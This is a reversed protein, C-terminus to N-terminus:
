ACTSLGARPETEWIKNGEGDYGYCTRLTQGDATVAKGKLLLNSPNSANGAEYQYSVVVEDAGGAACAAGVTASTRCTREESVLWVPSAAQVYGGGSAALWAYHQAYAYRKVPQVGGVAAGTETLVGGHASAYTYSTTNLNPDTVSSPKNCTKPDSCTSTYAATSTIDAIGSGPKARRITQYINGRSDRLYDTRGGEPETVAAVDVTENELRDAAEYVITTTRGLPDVISQPMGGTGVEVTTTQTGNATMTVTNWLWPFYYPENPARCQATTPSYTYTEGTATQQSVIPDQLFRIPDTYGPDWPIPPCEGYTNSIKCQSAGPDRVCSLHDHPSYGYTATAGGKTVSTLNQAYTYYAGDTYGYTASRAGAPCTSTALVYTRSLNVVCATTPRDFLIAWGRNSFISKLMASYNFDLRTGDPYTIDSVKANSVGPTFNTVTGDSETLTYYGSMTTGNFVLTVGNKSVSEYNGWPVHTPNQATGGSTGGIFAYSKMGISIHYLWPWRHAVPSVMVDPHQPLRENSVYTAFNDTWGMANFMGSRPPRTSSYSRRFTIGEHGEGGISLDEEDYTFTLTRYSVGTPSKSDHRPPPATQASAVGAVLLASLALCSAPSPRTYTM